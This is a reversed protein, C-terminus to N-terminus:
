VAFSVRNGIPDVTTVYVARSAPPLVAVHENTTRTLSLLVGRMVHGRLMEDRTTVPDLDTVKFSVSTAGSLTDSLLWFTETAAMLM